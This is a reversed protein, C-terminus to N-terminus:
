GVPIRIFDNDATHNDILFDIVQNPEVASLSFICFQEIRYPIM